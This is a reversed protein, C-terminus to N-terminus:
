IEIRVLVGCNKNIGFRDQHWGIGYFDRQKAWHFLTVRLGFTFSKSNQKRTFMEVQVDIAGLEGNNSIM